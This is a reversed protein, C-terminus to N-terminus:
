TIMAHALILFYTRLEDHSVHENFLNSSSTAKWTEIETVMGMEM